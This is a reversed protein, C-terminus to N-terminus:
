RAPTGMRARLASRWNAVVILQGSDDPTLFVFHKGDPMVDWNAHPNSAYMYTDVLVPDRSVVTFPPGPRVAAAM